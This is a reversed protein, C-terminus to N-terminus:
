FVQVASVYFGPSPLSLTLFYPGLVYENRWTPWGHKPIKAYSYMPVTSQCIVDHLRIGCTHSILFSTIAINCQFCPNNYSLSVIQLIKFDWYRGFLFTNTKLICTFGM